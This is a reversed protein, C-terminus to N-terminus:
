RYRYPQVQIQSRRQRNELELCNEYIDEKQEMISNPSRSRLRRKCVKRLIIVITILFILFCTCPVIVIALPINLAKRAEADETIVLEWKQEGIGKSASFECTYNGTHSSQARTITLAYLQNKLMSVNLKLNEATPYRACSAEPVKSSNKLSVCSSNSTGDSRIIFLNDGNMKWALQTLNSISDNSCNLTVTSGATRSIRHTEAQLFIYFFCCILTLTWNIGLYRSFDTNIAM